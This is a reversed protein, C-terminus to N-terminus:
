PEARFSGLCFSATDFCALGSMGSRAHLLCASLKSRHSKEFKRELLGGPLLLVPLRPLLPTVFNLVGCPRWIAQLSRRLSQPLTRGSMSHSHAATSEPPSSHLQGFRTESQLRTLPSLPNPITLHSITLGLKPRPLTGHLATRSSSVKSLLSPHSSTKVVDLLQQRAVAGKWLDVQHPQPSPCRLGM